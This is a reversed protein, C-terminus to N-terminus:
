LLPYAVENVNAMSQGCALVLQSLQHPIDHTSDNSPQALAPSYAVLLLSLWDPLFSCLRRPM